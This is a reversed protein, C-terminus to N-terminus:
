SIQRIFIFLIRSNQEMFIVLSEFTTNELLIKDFVRHHFTAKKTFITNSFDIIFIKSDREREAVNFEVVDSFTANSFDANLKFKVEKFNTVDRFKAHKFIIKNSSSVNEFILLSNFTVNSFDM